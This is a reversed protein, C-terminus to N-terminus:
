QIRLTSSDEVGLGAMSDVELVDLELNDTSKTKVVFVDDTSPASSKAGQLASNPFASSTLMAGSSLTRSLFGRRSLGGM